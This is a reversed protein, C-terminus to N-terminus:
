PSEQPPEEVFYFPDNSVIEKVWGVSVLVTKPYPIDLTFVDDEGADHTEARCSQPDYVEVVGHQNAVRILATILNVLEPSLEVQTIESAM